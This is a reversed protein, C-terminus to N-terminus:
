AQRRGGAAAGPRADGPRTGARGAPKLGRAARFQARVRGGSVAVVIAQITDIERPKIGMERAVGSYEKM